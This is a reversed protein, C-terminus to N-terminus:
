PWAWILLFPPKEWEAKGSGVAIVKTTHSSSTQPLTSSWSQTERSLVKSICHELGPSLWRIETGVPLLLLYGRYLPILLDIRDSFVARVQAQYTDQYLSSNTTFHLTQGAQIM